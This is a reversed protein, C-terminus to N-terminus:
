LVDILNSLISYDYSPIEWFFKQPVLHQDINKIDIKFIYRDGMMINELIESKSNSHIAIDLKSDPAMSLIISDIIGSNGRNIRDVVGNIFFIDDNDENLFDFEPLIDILEMRINYDTMLDLFESPSPQKTIHWFKLRFTYRVNLKIDELNHDETASISIIIRDSFNSSWDSSVRKELIVSNIIGDDNKNLQDVVGNIYFIANDDDQFNYLSGRVSFLPKDLSTDEVIPINSECGIFLIGVILIYIMYVINLSKSFM